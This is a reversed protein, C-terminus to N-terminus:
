KPADPPKDGGAAGGAPAAADGAPAAAGGEAPKAGGGCLFVSALIALLSVIYLAFWLGYGIASDPYVAFPASHM